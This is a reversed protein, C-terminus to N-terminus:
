ACGGFVSFVTPATIKGVTLLNLLNLVKVRITILLFPGTCLYLQRFPTSTTSPTTTGLAAM